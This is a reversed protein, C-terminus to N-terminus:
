VWVGEKLSQRFEHVKDVFAEEVSIRKGDKVCIKSPEGLVSIKGHDQILFRDCHEISKWKIRQWLLARGKSVHRPCSELYPASASDAPRRAEDLFLIKPKHILCWIISLQRQVGFPLAESRTHAFKQLSFEELLEEIRRCNKGFLGYSRGFYELNQM